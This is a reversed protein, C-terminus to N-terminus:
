FTSSFLNLSGLFMLRMKLDVDGTHCIGTYIQICVKFCKEVIFKLVISKGWISFCSCELTNM